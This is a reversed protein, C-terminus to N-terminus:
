TSALAKQQRNWAICCLDLKLLHQADTYHYCNRKLSWKSTKNAGDRRQTHFWISLFFRCVLIAKLNKAHVGEIILDITVIQSTTFHSRQFDIQNKGLVIEVEPQVFSLILADYVIAAINTLTINRYNRTTVKRQSPLIYGKMWKEFTNQKYVSNYQRRGIATYKIFQVLSLNCTTM